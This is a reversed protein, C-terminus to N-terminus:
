FGIGLGAGSRFTFVSERVIGRADVLAICHFSGVGPAGFRLDTLDVRTAHIAPLLVPQEAWIPFRAFYMFYRFPETTLARQMAADFPTKYSVQAPDPDINRLVNVDLGRYSDATEVIGSWALPNFATPLAAVALPLAGGYMQSGLQTVARAHM